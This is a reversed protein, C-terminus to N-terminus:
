YIAKFYIGKFFGKKHKNLVLESQPQGQSIYSYVTCNRDKIICPIYIELLANSLQEMLGQIDSRKLITKLRQLSTSLELSKHLRKNNGAALVCSILNNQYDFREYNM